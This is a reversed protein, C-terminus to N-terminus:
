LLYVFLYCFSIIWTIFIRAVIRVRGFADLHTAEERTRAGRWGGRLSSSSSAAM